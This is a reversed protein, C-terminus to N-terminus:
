TWGANMAVSHVWFWKHASTRHGTLWNLILTLALVGLHWVTLSVAISTKRLTDVLSWILDKRSIIAEQWLLKVSKWSGKVNAPTNTVEAPRGHYPVHTLVEPCWVHVRIAKHAIWVAVKSGSLFTHNYIAAGLIIIIMVLLVSHGTVM